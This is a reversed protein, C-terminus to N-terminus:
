TPYSVPLDAARNKDQNLLIVIDQRREPPTVELRTIRGENLTCEIRTQRPLHLRFSVNWRDSPWAPFLYIRSGVMQVLMSQLAILSVSGHDFDPVWDYNPGWFGPFRVSSHQSETLNKTVYYAAPASLGLYAAQVADQRWGGTDPFLRHTYTTVALDLDPRGIGFLKFPFIAYLEPNEVNQPFSDHSAAPLLQLKGDRKGIPIRPLRASLARWAGLDGVSLQKEPLALLRPLLYHLAAVEPMPNEAGWWTELAQAPAVLLRGEADHPYHLAYFKLVARSIPLLIRSLLLSDETHRYTELMLAILELGSIWCHRIYDNKIEAPEKDTRDWGYNSPLHAGWFYQTEPLSAGGHGFWEETRQEALPLMNLYMQFLPRMLEYDGSALLSWYILRTNQWWYGGGWRRYDADFSEDELGWDATFLGGNFKIPFEGRGCCAVMFRHWAVHQSIKEAKGWDHGRSELQIHSRDWFSMWWKKHDRQAEKISAPDNPGARGKIQELWEDVSDTQSCHVTVTFTATTVRRAAIGDRGKRKFGKGHLYGGFTRDLLPDHAKEKYASLSQLDLVTPWISSENRQYWAVAGRVKPVIRDPTAVLPIDGGEIGTASYVERGKLERPKTRWKDIRVRVDCPEESDVEVVLRPWHADCWLKVQTTDNTLTISADELSLKQEFKEGKLLDPKLSIRLRGVKILRGLHDWADNKALYLLIDGDPDTWVNAAIDGNGFPM